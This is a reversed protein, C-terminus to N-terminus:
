YDLYLKTDFDTMIPIKKKVNPTVNLNTELGKVCNPSHIRKGLCHCKKRAAQKM